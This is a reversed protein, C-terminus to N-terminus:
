AKSGGENASSRQPTVRDYTDEFVEAKIPYPNGASDLALWDGYDATMRGESTMVDWCDANASVKRALAGAVAALDEPRTIRRALTGRTKRYVGWGARAMGAHPCVPDQCDREACLEATHLPM